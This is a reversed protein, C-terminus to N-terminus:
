ALKEKARKRNFKSKNEHTKCLAIERCFYNDVEATSMAAIPMSVTGAFNSWNLEICKLLNVYGKKKHSKNSFTRM